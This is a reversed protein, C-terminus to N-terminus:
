NFKYFASWILKSGTEAIEQPTLDPRYQFWYEYLGITASAMSYTVLDIDILDNTYKDASLRENITNRIVKNWKHVFRPDGPKIILPRFYDKKSYIYTATEIWLPVSATTDTVPISHMDINLDRVGDLLENEITELLDYKDDFHQYFTSRSIECVNCIENVTVKELGKKEYLRMFEDKILTRTLEIQSEKLKGAM